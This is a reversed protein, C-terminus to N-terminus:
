DEPELCYSSRSRHRGTQPSQLSRAAPRVSWILRVTACDRGQGAPTPTAHNGARRELQQDESRGELDLARRGAVNAVRQIFDFRVPADPGGRARAFPRPYSAHCVAINIVTARYVARSVSCLGRNPCLRLWFTLASDSDVTAEQSECMGLHVTPFPGAAAVLEARTASSRRESAWLASVRESAEERRREAESGVRWSSHLMDSGGSISALQVGSTWIRMREACNQM